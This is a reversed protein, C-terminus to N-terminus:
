AQETRKVANQALFEMPLEEHDPSLPAWRQQDRTSVAGLAALERDHVHRRAPGSRNGRATRFRRNIM